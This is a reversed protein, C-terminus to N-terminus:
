AMRGIILYLEKQPLVMYSLTGRYPSLFSDRGHCVFFSHSPILQQETLFKCYERIAALKRARTVGSRGQDALFSLFDTIHSRSLQAPSLVTGDNEMVWRVFQEVDTKYATATNASLNRGSLSRIFLPVTQQLPQQPTMHKTGGAGMM